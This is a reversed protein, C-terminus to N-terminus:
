KIRPRKSILNYPFIDGIETAVLKRFFEVREKRTRSLISKIIKDDTLKM